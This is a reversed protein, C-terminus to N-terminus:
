APPRANDAPRRRIRLVKDRSRHGNVIEVASARVGFHQAVVDRVAENARDDVPAATVRVVLRGGREGAVENCRARPIVRVELRDDAV